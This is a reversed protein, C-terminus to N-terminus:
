WPWSMSAGLHVLHPTILQDWLRYVMVLGGLRVIGVSLSDESVAEVRTKGMLVPRDVIVGGDRVGAVLWQLTKVGM